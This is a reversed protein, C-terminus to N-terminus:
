DRVTIFKIIAKEKHSFNCFMNIGQWQYMFDNLPFNAPHM